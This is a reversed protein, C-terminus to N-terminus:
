RRRTRARDARGAHRDARRHQPHRSGRRESPGRGARAGRPLRTPRDPRDRRGQQCAPQRHGSGRHRLGRGPARDRVPAGRHLRRRDVRFALYSGLLPIGGGGGALARGPRGVGPASAPPALGQAPKRQAKGRARGPQQAPNPRRRPPGAPRETKEAPEAPRETAPQPRPRRLACPLSTGSPARRYRVESGRRRARSGLRSRVRARGQVNAPRPGSEQAGHGSKELM